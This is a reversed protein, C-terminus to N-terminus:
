DQSDFAQWGRGDCSSCPTTNWYGSPDNSSGFYIQESTNGKGGCTTCTLKSEKKSDKIQKTGFLKDFLGM